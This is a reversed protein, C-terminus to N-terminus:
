KSFPKLSLDAKPSFSSRHSSSRRHHHQHPHHSSKHGGSGNNSNSSGGSTSNTTDLPFGNADVQGVSASLNLSEIASLLEARASSAGAKAKSTTPTVQLDSRPTDGLAQLSSSARRSSSSARHRHRRKQPSSANPTAGTSPTPSSLKPSTMPSATLSRRTGRRRMSLPTSTSTPPKPSTVDTVLHRRSRPKSSTTAQYAMIGLSDNSHHNKISRRKPSEGGKPSKIGLLNGSDTSSSRSIMSPRKSNSSLLTINTPISVSRFGHETHQDSGNSGEGDEDWVDEDFDFTQCSEHLDCTEVKQQIEKLLMKRTSDPRPQQEEIEQLLLKRRSSSARKMGDRRTGAKPKPSTMMPLPSVLCQKQQGTATSAPSMFLRRSSGQQSSTPKPSQLGFSFASEQLGTSVSATMEETLATGTSKGLVDSGVSMHQHQQRRGKYSRPLGGLRDYPIASLSDDDDEETQEDSSSASSSSRPSLKRRLQHQHKQEYVERPVLFGIDDIVFSDEMDDAESSAPSSQEEDDLQISCDDNMEESSTSASRHVVGEHSEDDDDCTTTRTLAPLSIDQMKRPENTSIRPLEPIISDMKNISQPNITTILLAVYKSSLFSSLLTFLPMSNFLLLLVCMM